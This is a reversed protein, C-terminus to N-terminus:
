DVQFSVRMNVRWEQVKGDPSTTVKIDNVWAGRINNVTRAVRSLGQQVASEIGEDSSSSIEIFKVVGTM